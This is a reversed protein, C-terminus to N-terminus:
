TINNKRRRRTTEIPETLSGLFGDQFLIFDVEFRELLELVSTTFTAYQPPLLGGFDVGFGEWIWGIVTWFGVWFRGFDLRFNNLIWGLVTWSRPRSPLGSFELIKVCKPLTKPRRAIRKPGEQFRRPADPPTKPTDQCTEPTTKLRIQRM